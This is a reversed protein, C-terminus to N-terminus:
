KITHKHWVSLTLLMSVAHANNVYDRGKFNSYARNIVTKPIFEHFSSDFLYSRLESDNKEGMFQLEFNRQIFPKGFMGSLSRQLKSKIRYPLNCPVKNLHYNNINFPKQGQWTIGALGKDQKIHALQLRRDALYAEPITCIFKCMRDDYFPLTVAGAAHFFEINTTTWRHAWHVTKFARVKASLNDIRIDSLGKEIRSVLYDKFNGDLGWHSWLQSATSFGDPRVMKKLLLPLIGEEKTGEPVGRDFLVDGWHGLSFVGQMQKLAELVAMQRPHTFESYCNNIQPIENIVNWMYGKKIIFEIFDFACYTAIKKAIKHEPYGGDFSYGYSTVPNGMQKLVMAQSRSDLGGSLPLIVQHNGLQDKMIKSLLDAYSGLATDFSIDRPEYYWNFYAKQNIVYGLGDLSYDCGPQLVIDDRYFCDGGMFFGTAIFICIAERNIENREGKLKAFRQKVPNIPIRISEQDSIAKKM